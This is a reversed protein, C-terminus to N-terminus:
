FLPRSGSKKHKGYKKPKVIKYNIEVNSYKPEGLEFHIPETNPTIDSQMIFFGHVKDDKIPENKSKEKGDSFLM